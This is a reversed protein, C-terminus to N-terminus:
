SKELFSRRFHVIKLRVSKLEVIIRFIGRDRNTHGNPASKTNLPVHTGFAIQGFVAM